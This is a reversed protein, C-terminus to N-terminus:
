FLKIAKTISQVPYHMVYVHIYHIGTSILYVESDKYKWDSLLIKEEGDSPGEDVGDSPGEDVGDSCGDDVGDSPGENVVEDMGDSPSEDVGDSPGQDVGDQHESNSPGEGM